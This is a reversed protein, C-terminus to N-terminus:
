AGIIGVGDIQRHETAEPVPLRQGVVVHGPELREIRHALPGLGGDGSGVPGRELHRLAGGLDDEFQRRIPRVHLRVDVGGDVPERCSAESRQSHGPGLAVTRPIEDPHQGQEIGRPVVGLHRDGGGM